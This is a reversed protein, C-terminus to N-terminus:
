PPGPPPSSGPRRGAGEEQLYGTPSCVMVTPPVVLPARPVRSPAINRIAVLAMPGPKMVCVAVNVPWSPADKAKAITADIRTSRATCSLTQRTMPTDPSRAWSSALRTTGPAPQSNDNRTTSPPSTNLM